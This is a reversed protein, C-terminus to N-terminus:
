APCSRWEGNAQIVRKPVGLIMAAGGPRLLYGTTFRNIWFLAPQAGRKTETQPVSQNEVSLFSGIKRQQRLV